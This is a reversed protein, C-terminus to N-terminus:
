NICDKVVFQSCLLKPSRQEKRKPGGFTEGLQQCNQKMSAKYYALLRSM